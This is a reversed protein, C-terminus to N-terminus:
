AEWNTLYGGAIRAPIQNLYQVDAVCLKRAYAAKEAMDRFTVGAGWRYEDDINRPWMGADIAAIEAERDALMRERDMRKMLNYAAM